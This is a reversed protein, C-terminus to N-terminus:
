ARGRKGGVYCTAASLRQPMDHTGPLGVIRLLLPRRDVLGSLGQKQRTGTRYWLSALSGCHCVPSWMTWEARTREAEWDSLHGPTFFCTSVLLLSCIPCEASYLTSQCRRACPPIWDKSFTVRQRSGPKRRPSSLAIAVWELDITGSAASPPREQSRIIVEIFNSHKVHFMGFSRRPTRSCSGRFSRTSAAVARKKPFKFRVRSAGIAAVKPPAM